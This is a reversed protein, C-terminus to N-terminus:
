LSDLALLAGLLLSCAGSLLLAMLTCVRTLRRLREQQSLGPTEAGAARLWLRIAEEPWGLGLFAVSSFLLAGAGLLLLILLM